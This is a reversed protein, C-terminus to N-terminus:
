QCDQRNNQSFYKIRLSAPLQQNILNILNDIGQLYYENLKIEFNKNKLHFQIVYTNGRNTDLCNNFYYSQLTDLNLKAVDNFFITKNYKHITFLHETFSSRHFPKQYIGIKKKGFSYSRWETGTSDTNRIIVKLSTKKSINSKVDQSYINISLTLFIFLLLNTIGIKM